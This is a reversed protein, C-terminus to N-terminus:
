EKVRLAVRVETGSLPTNAPLLGRQVLVAAGWTFVDTCTRPEQEVNEALPTRSIATSLMMNLADLGNDEAAADDM